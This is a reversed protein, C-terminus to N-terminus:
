GDRTRLMGHPVLQDYELTYVPDPFTRDGLQQRLTESAASNRRDPIFLKLIRVVGESLKFL